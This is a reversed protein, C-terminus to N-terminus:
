QNFETLFTVRESVNLAKQTRRKSRRKNLALLVKTYSQNFTVEGVKKKLANLVRQTAQMFGGTMDTRGQKILHRDNVDRVLPSMMIDLTEFVLEDSLKFKIMERLWVYIAQRRVTLKTNLKIEANIEFVLKKILQQGNFKVLRKRQDETMDVYSFDCEELEIFLTLLNTFNRMILETHHEIEYVYRISSCMNRYYTWIVDIPNSLLFDKTEFSDLIATVIEESTYCLFMTEFLQIATIRVWIHSHTTYASQLHQWIGALDKAYAEDRIM